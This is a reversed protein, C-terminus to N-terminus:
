RLLEPLNSSEKEYVNKPKIVKLCITKGHKAKYNEVKQKTYKEEYYKFFIATIHIEITWSGINFYSGNGIILM